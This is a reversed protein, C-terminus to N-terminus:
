ITLNQTLDIRKESVINIKTDLNDEGIHKFFYFYKNRKAVFMSQDNFHHIIEFINDNISVEKRIIKSNNYLFISYGDSCWIGGFSGFSLQKLELRNFYELDIHNQNLVERRVVFVGNSQSSVWINKENDEFLYLAEKIDLWKLLQNGNYCFVGKDYASIWLFGESDELIFKVSNYDFPLFLKEFKLNKSIKIVGLNTTKAYFYSKKTPYVSEIKLTTDEVIPNSFFDIQSYIGYITWIRLKRNEFNEVFSVRVSERSNWKLPLTVAKKFFRNKISLNYKNMSFTECQLNYFLINDSYNIFDLIFGKGQLANLFHATKSSYIKNSFMYNVSANYNFFWIRGLSDEKIRIVDNSSLGDEKRYNTFTSGDFRVVGADTTFWIFRKSDQYIQYITNSPLGDLTTYHRIFPNQGSM